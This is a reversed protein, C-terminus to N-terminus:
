LCHYICRTITFQMNYKLLTKHKEFITPFVIWLVSFIILFYNLHIKFLSLECKQSSKKNELPLFHFIFSTELLSFRSTLIRCTRNALDALRVQLAQLDSKCINCTLNAFFYFSTKNENLYFRDLCYPYYFYNNRKNRM